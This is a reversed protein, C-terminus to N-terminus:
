GEGSLACCDATEVGQARLAANLAAPVVVSKQGTQENQRMMNAEAFERTFNNAAGFTFFVSLRDRRGIVKWYTQKALTAWAPDHRDKRQGGIRSAAKITNEITDPLQGTHSIRVDFLVVDGAKSPVWVVNGKHGAHRHSGLAVTLGDGTTADQLYVAAKFVRCDDASFYDGKFYGGIHEGSDKHWGSLMNMHIDCHGTFVMDDDLVAKFLQVIKPHSIIWGIEPALIAANPQTRGLQIPEGGAALRGRVEKRAQTIEEPSLLGRILVAGEIALAARAARTDFPTNDQWDITTLAMIAGM